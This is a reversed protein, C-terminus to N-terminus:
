AMIVKGLLETNRDIMDLYVNRVPASLGRAIQAHTWAAHRAARISWIELVDDIPGLAEDIAEGLRDLLVEKANAMLDALIDNVAEYDRHRASGPALDDGLEAATSILALVLDRNIHANMGALAFRFASKACAFRKTRLPRWARAVEKDKLILADQYTRAFVVVLRSVFAPDNVEGANVADIVRETVSLYLANFYLFGDNPALNTGVGRMWTAVEPLTAQASLIPIPM